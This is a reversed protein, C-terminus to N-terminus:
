EFADVVDQLKEIIPIFQPCKPECEGCAVCLSARDDKHVEKLFKEKYGPFDEYISANNLYGFNKPINVGHPCPM